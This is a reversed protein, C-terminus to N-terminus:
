LSKWPAPLGAHEEGSRVGPRGPPAAAGPGTGPAAADGVGRAAALRWHWDHRSYPQVNIQVLMTTAEVYREEDDIRLDLEIQSWDPPLSSVVRDFVEALAM